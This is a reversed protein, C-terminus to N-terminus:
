LMKISNIKYEFQGAPTEVCVIEDIKKFLLARGMPSMYSACDMTNHADNGFPSVIQIEIIEGDELDELEVISGIIVFSDIQADNEYENIYHEIQAIYNNMYSKFEYKETTENFFFKDIVQVKESEIDSLHDLWRQRVTHSEANVSM